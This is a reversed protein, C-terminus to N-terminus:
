ASSNGGAYNRKVEKLIKHYKEDLYGLRYLAEMVPKWSPSSGQGEFWMKLIMEKCKEPKFSCEKGIEGLKSKPM